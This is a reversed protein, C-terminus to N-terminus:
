VNRNKSLVKVKVNPLLTGSSGPVFDEEHDGCVFGLETSGYFQLVAKVGTTSLFAETVAAGLKSGGTMVVTNSFDLGLKDIQEKPLKSLQLMANPLMTLIKLQFVPLPLHPPPDVAHM